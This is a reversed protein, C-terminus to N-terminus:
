RASSPPLPLRDQSRDATESLNELPWFTKRCSYVNLRPPYEGTLFLMKARSHEKASSTRFVQVLFKSNVSCRAVNWLLESNVPSLILVGNNIYKFANQKCVSQEAIVLFLSMTHFASLVSCSEALRCFVQMKDSNPKYKHGIVIVKLEVLGCLESLEM